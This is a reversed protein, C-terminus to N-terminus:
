GTKISQSDDLFLKFNYLGGTIFSFNHIMHAYLTCKAYIGFNIKTTCHLYISATFYMCNLKKDRNSLKECHVEVTRCM